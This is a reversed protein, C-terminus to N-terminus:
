SVSHVLMKLSQLYFSVFREENHETVVLAKKIMETSLEGRLATWGLTTAQGVTLGAWPGETITDVYLERTETAITPDVAIAVALPDHLLAAKEGDKIHKMFPEAIQKLWETLESQGINDLQELTLATHVTVDTPVITLPIGSRLVIRASHPCFWWNFGGPFLIGNFEGGMAVIAKVLPVIEPDKRIALAINQLPGM